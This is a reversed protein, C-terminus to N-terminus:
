PKKTARDVERLRDALELIDEIENTLVLVAQVMGAPLPQGGDLRQVFFSNANRISAPIAVPLAQTYMARDLLMKNESTRLEHTYSVAPGAAPLAAPPPITPESWDSPPITPSSTSEESPPPRSSARSFPPPPSMLTAAISGTHSPRPAAGPEGANEIADALDAAARALVLVREDNGDKEAEDAARRLWRAVERMDGQEELARATELALLVGESDSTEPRPTYSFMETNLQAVTFKSEM